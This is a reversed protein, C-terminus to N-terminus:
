FFIKPFLPPNGVISELELSVARQNAMEANVVDVIKGSVALRRGEKQAAASRWIRARGTGAGLWDRQSRPIVSKIDLEVFPPTPPKSIVPSSTTPLYPPPTLDSLLYFLM